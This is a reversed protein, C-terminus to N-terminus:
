MAFPKASFWDDNKRWVETAILSGYVVSEDERIIQGLFRCTTDKEDGLTEVRKNGSTKEIELPLRNECISNVVDKVRSYEEDDAKQLAEDLDDLTELHDPLNVRTPPVPPTGDFTQAEIIALSGYCERILASWIDLWFEPNPTREIGVVKGSILIIAGIQDDIPEFEAVFQELQENYHDLFFELHGGQNSVGAMRNLQKIEPWLKEYNTKNRKKHASERLPFPLVILKHQGSDITGCQSDQICAATNFRNRGKSKVIGAHTMAHNQAAHKVLYAAHVPIILDDDEKNEFELTGYHSTSVYANSPSAFNDFHLDSKLPIVQMFGVTQIRAPECGRLVDAISISRTVTM